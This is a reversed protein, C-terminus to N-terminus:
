MESTGDAATANEANGFSTPFFIKRSTGNECGAKGCGKALGLNVVRFVLHPTASNEQKFDRALRDVNVNM